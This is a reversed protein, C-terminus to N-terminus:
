RASGVTIKVDLRLYFHHIQLRARVYRDDQCENTELFMMSRGLACGFACSDDNRSALTDDNLSVNLKAEFSIYNTVHLCRLPM